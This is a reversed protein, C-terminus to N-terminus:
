VSDAVFLAMLAAQEDIVKRIAQEVNKDKWLRRSSGAGEIQDM